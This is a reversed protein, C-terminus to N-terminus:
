KKILDMGCKKCTGPKDSHQDPHMPCVYMAASTSTVKVGTIVPFGKVVKMTFLGKTGESVTDFLKADDVAFTMTMAKMYGKIEKHDLTIKKDDRYIKKVTAKVKYVKGDKVPAAAVSSLAFYSLLIAISLIYKM